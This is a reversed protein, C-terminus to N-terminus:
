FEYTHMYLFFVIYMPNLLIDTTRPMQSIDQFTDRVSLPLSSYNAINIQAERCSKNELM